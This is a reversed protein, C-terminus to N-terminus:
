EAQMSLQWELRAQELESLPRTSTITCAGGERELDSVPRAEPVRVTSSRTGGELTQSSLVRIAQHAQHWEHMYRIIPLGIDHTGPCKFYYIVM